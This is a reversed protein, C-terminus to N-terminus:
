FVAAQLSWTFFGFTLTMSLSICNTYLQFPNSYLYKQIKQVYVFETDGETTLRWHTLRILQTIAHKIDETTSISDGHHLSLEQLLKHLEQLSLAKKHQPYFLWDNFTMIHSAHALIDRHILIVDNDPFCMSICVLVISHIYKVRKGKATM